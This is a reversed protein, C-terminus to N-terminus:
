ALNLSKDQLDVLLSSKGAIANSRPVERKREERSHFLFYMYQDQTGMGSVSCNFGGYCSIVLSNKIRVYLRKAMEQAAGVAYPSSGEWALPRIPATAALRCWLWLLAPASGRRRGVGCSM